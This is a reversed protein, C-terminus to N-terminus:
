GPRVGWARIASDAWSVGDEQFSNGFRPNTGGTYEALLTRGDGDTDSAAGNSLTGYYYQEFGDNIGDSDSDSSFLYAVAVRDAGNVTFSIQRLAVGWADQQRVGDVTWYGFTAQTMDPTTIVTGDPVIASQNVTGAPVSSLTYRSFGALNVTAL